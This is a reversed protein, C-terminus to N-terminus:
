RPVGKRALGTGAIRNGKFQIWRSKGSRYEKVKIKMRFSVSRRTPM